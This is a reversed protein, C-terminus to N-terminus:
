SSGGVAAHAIEDAGLFRHFSLGVLAEIRSELAFPPEVPAIKCIGHAQGSPKRDADLEPHYQACDRLALCLFTGGHFIFRLFPSEMGFQSKM